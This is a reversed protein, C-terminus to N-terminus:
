AHDTPDWEIDDPREIREPGNPTRCCHELFWAGAVLLACAIFTGLSVYFDTRPTPKDLSPALYIAFGVAVGGLAAAAHSSAKALAALRAAVLPDMPKTDPRRQIRARTVLGVYTEGLALLLLSPMATWPLLPLSAYTFRVILWAVVASAIALGLVVAPRSPNV